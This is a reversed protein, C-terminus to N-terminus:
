AKNINLVTAESIGLEEAITKNTYGAQSLQQIRNKMTEADKHIQKVRETRNTSITSEKM